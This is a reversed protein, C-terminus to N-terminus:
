KTEQPNDRVNLSATDARAQTIFALAAFLSEDAQAAEFFAQEDLIRTQKTVKLYDAHSILGQDEAERLRDALTASTGFSLSGKSVERTFKKEMGPVAMSTKDELVYHGDKNKPTTDTVLGNAEAVRDFHNFASTRIAKKARDIVDEVYDLKLRTDIHNAIEGQEMVRKTSPIVLHEIHTVLEAIAKAEEESVFATPPEWNILDSETTKSVENQAYAIMAKAVSTLTADQEKSVKGGIPSLALSAQKAADKNSMGLLSCM